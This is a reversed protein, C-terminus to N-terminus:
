RRSRSIKCGSKYADYYFDDCFGSYDYIPEPKPTYVPTQVARPKKKPSFCLCIIVGILYLLVYHWYKEPWEEYM